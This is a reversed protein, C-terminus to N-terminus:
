YQPALDADFLRTTSGVYLLLMEGDSILAAAAKGIRQKEATRTNLRQLFPSDRHVLTTITVAGCHTRTLAGRQALADLDRRVTDESVGFYASIDSVSMQGKVELLKVLESQRQEPLAPKRPSDLENM